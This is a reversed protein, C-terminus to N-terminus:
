EIIYVLRFGTNESHSSQTVLTLEKFKNINSASTTFLKSNEEDFVFEQIGTNLGQIRFVNTDAFFHAPKEAFRFYENDRYGWIYDWNYPNMRRFNNLTMMEFKGKGKNESNLWRLYETIDAFDIGTVSQSDKAGKQPVIKKTQADFRVATRSDDLRPLLKEPTLFLGAPNERSNLFKLYEGLSVETKAVYFPTIKQTKESEQFEIGPIYVFGPKGLDEHPIIIKFKHQSMKEIKMGFIVPEDLFNVKIRLLYDGPMLAIDVRQRIENFAIGGKVWFDLIEPTSAYTMKQSFTMIIGSVTEANMISSDEAFKDKIGKALIDIDLSDLKNRKFNQAIDMGIAYSLTDDYTLLNVKADEENKCSTLIIASVIFLIGLKKM